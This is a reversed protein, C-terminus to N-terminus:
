SGEPDPLLVCDRARVQLRVRAGERFPHEDIPNIVQLTEGAAEVFYRAAV